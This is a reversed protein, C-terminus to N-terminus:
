RSYKQPSNKLYGTFPESCNHIARLAALILRVREINPYALDVYLADCLIKSVTAQDHELCYKEITATWSDRQCTIRLAQLELERGLWWQEGAQYRHKAEAYLADLDARLAETKIKRGVTVCWFRRNPPPRDLLAGFVFTRPFDEVRKTYHKRFRDVASSISSMYNEGTLEVVLRGQIACMSSKLHLSRSLRVFWEPRVALIQFIDECPKGALTLVYDARCGPQYTRAVVSLMWAAGQARTLETDECGLYKTLWTDLRPIGDGSLSDFYDRIPNFSHKKAADVLAQYAYKKYGRLGYEKEAWKSYEAADKEEVPRKSKIEDWPADQICPVLRNEDFSLNLANCAIIDFNFECNKPTGDARKVLRQEIM